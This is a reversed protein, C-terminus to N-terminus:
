SRCEKGVRREESRIQSRAAATATSAQPSHANQNVGDYKRMVSSLMFNTEEGPWAQDAARIPTSRATYAASEHRSTRCLGSLAHALKQRPASATMASFTM